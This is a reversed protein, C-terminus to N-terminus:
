IGEHKEKLLKRLRQYVYQPVYGAVSDYEWLYDFGMIGMESPLRSIALEVSDYKEIPLGNIKPSCFHYKSAQASLFDNGFLEWERVQSPEHIVKAVNTM